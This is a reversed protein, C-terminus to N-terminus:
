PGKPVPAKQAWDGRGIGHEEIARRVHPPLENLEPGGGFAYGALKNFNRLKLLSSKEKDSM